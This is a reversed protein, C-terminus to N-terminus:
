ERGERGTMEEVKLKSDCDQPCSDSTAVGLTLRIGMFGAKSYSVPITARCFGKPGVFLLRYNGPPQSEFGFQGNPDTETAGVDRFDKGDSVQLKVKVKPVLASTRDVVLGKL